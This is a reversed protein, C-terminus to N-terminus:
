CRSPTAHRLVQILPSCADASGAVIVKSVEAHRGNVGLIHLLIYQSPYQSSIGSNM